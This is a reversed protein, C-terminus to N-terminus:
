PRRRRKVWGLAAAVSLVAVGAILYPWPTEESVILPRIKVNENSISLSQTSPIVSGFTALGQDEALNVVQIIVDETTALKHLGQWLRLPQDAKVSLKLTDDLTVTADSESFIYTEGIPVHLYATQGARLGTFGVGGDLADDTKFMLMMPQGGEIFLHAVEKPPDFFFSGAKISTDNVLKRNQLDFVRIGTDEASTAIFAVSPFWGLGVGSGYFRRGVFGGEVAPYFCSARGHRVHGDFISWLAFSQLMINGTSALRYVRFPKLSFEKVQNVDLHFSDVRTGNADEITIDSDEIAYVRYPLWSQQLMKSEVDMFIFEKGVYGGEVSTYFASIMADGEELPIGGLLMVTVPKDATVKFFTGLSLRLTVQELKGLSIDRLLSKASLDYVQCRTDDVNGLVVLMVESANFEIGGEGTGFMGGWGGALLALSSRNYFVRSPAFGYYVYESYAERPSASAYVSARGSAHFSAGMVLAVSVLGLFAIPYRL